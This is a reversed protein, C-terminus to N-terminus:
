VQPVELTDTHSTDEDGFGPAEFSLENIEDESFDGKRFLEQLEEGDRDILRALFVIRDMNKPTNRFREVREQKKAEAKAQALAAELEAVTSM